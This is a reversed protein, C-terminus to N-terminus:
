DVKKSNAENWLQENAKALQDSLQRREFWHEEDKTRLLLQQDRFLGILRPVFSAVEVAISGNMSVTEGMYDQLKKYAEEAMDVIKEQDVDVAAQQNSM